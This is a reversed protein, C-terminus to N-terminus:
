SSGQGNDTLKAGGEALQRGDPHQWKPEADSMKKKMKM